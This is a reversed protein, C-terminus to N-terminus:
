RIGFGLGAENRCEMLSNLNPARCAERIDDGALEFLSTGAIDHLDLISVGVGVGLHTEEGASEFVCFPLNQLPFGCGPENASSIWSQWTWSPDFVSKM